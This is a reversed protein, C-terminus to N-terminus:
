LITATQKVAFAVKGPHIKIDSDVILLGNAANHAASEDVTYVSSTLDFLVQNGVLADYEAQTDIAAATKCPVLYVNGEIPIFVEVTGAASATNTSAAAAFGVFATTTGIVPEADALVTVTPSGASTLKLPTGVAIVTASAAVQYTKTPAVSFVGGNKFEFDM